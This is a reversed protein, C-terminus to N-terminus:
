MCWVTYMPQVPRIYRAWAACCLCCDVVDGQIPYMPTDITQADRVISWLWLDFVDEVITTQIITTVSVAGNIEHCAADMGIWEIFEFSVILGLARPECLRHICHTYIHVSHWAAADGNERMCFAFTPFLSQIFLSISFACASFVIHQIQHGRAWGLM